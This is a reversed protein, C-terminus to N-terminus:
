NPNNNCDFSENNNNNDIKRDFKKMNEVDLIANMILDSVDNFGLESSSKYKKM